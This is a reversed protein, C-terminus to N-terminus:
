RARSQSHRRAAATPMRPARSWTVKSSGAPKFVDGAKAIGAASPTLGRINLTTGVQNAGDVVPTGAWSGAPAAGSGPVGPVAWQFSGFQGGQAMAFAFLPAWDTSALVPWTATVTWVNAGKRRSQRKGSRARSVLSPQLGGLRVSSPAPSAPFTGSM